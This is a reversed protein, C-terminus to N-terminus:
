YLSNTVCFISFRFLWAFSFLTGWFKSVAFGVVVELIPPACSLPPIVLTWISLWETLIMASAEWHLNPALRYPSASLSSSDWLLCPGGQSIFYSRTIQPLQARYLWWSYHILFYWVPIGRTNWHNLIWRGNRPVYTRDRALPVLIGWAESYRLRCAAVLSAWLGSHFIGCAEVLSVSAALKIFILFFSWVMAGLPFVPNPEQSGRTVAKEEVSWHIVKNRTHKQKFDYECACIYKSSQYKVWPWSMGPHLKDLVLM